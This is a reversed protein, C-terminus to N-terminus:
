QQEIISWGPLLNGEADLPPKISIPLNFDYYKRVYFIEALSKGDIIVEQTVMSRRLIYDDKGIWLEKVAKKKEADNGIDITGRYHYCLVSDINEEPLVEIDRLTDLQEQALTESPTVAQFDQVTPATSPLMAESGGRGYSLEGIGILEWEKTGIVNHHYIPTNIQELTQERPNFDWILYYRDGSIEAKSKFSQVYVDQKNFYSYVAGSSQYSQVSTLAAQARALVKEPTLMLTPLLLPLLIAAVLVIPTAVLVPRLWRRSKRTGNGTIASMIAGNVDPSVPTNAVTLLKTHLGLQVDLAKKCESCTRIHRDVAMKEEDSLEGDAYASLMQKIEKCNKM